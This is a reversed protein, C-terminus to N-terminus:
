DDVKKVDRQVASRHGTEAENRSNAISYQEGDEPASLVHLVAISMPVLGYWIRCEHVEGMLFTAGMFGIMGALYPWARKNRVGAIFVGFPILVM